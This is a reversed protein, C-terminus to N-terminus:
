SLYTGANVHLAQGTVPRSMDSALFVASGAVEDSSPLYGLCTTAAAESYVEEYPIGRDEATQRFYAEVTSGFIFAPHIANVRIGSPGLETALLRTLGALAAKPGVYPGWTPEPRDIALTNVMIVRGEGREVMAPTAARTMALTGWYTSEMTRRWAGLDAELLTSYPAETDFANNVLVDIGGFREVAAAVLRDCQSEDTVDTVLALARGGRADIEAAVEDIVQARRAGLAVDAGERAFALAISRGLGPGVGSVIAVKGGLLGMGDGEGGTM